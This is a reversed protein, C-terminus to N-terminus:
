IAGVGASYKRGLVIRTLGVTQTSTPNYDAYLAVSRASSSTVSGYSPSMGDAFPDSAILQTGVGDDYWFSANGGTPGVQLTLWYVAGATITASIGTFALFARTAGPALLITDSSDVLTAGSMTQADNYIGMRFAQIDSGDNQLDAYLRTVTGDEPAITRLSFKTDAALPTAHTQGQALHGFSSM